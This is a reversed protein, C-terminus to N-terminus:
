TARIETVDIFHRGTECRYKFHLWWAGLPRAARGQAAHWGDTENKYTASRLFIQPTRVIAGNGTCVTIINEDMNRRHIHGSFYIDAMYQGRTRNNDIMGRTVEGGGGYGHHFFLDKTIQKGCNFTFKVFGWYSGMHVNTSERRLNSVLRDILGTQQRDLISQEHNGPTILAINSAYKGYYDSATEVLKDLYNNGRLDERLQNQDARKDWKGQMACFVDGIKMIAAGKEVAEEHHRTLLKRDCHANDFHEDSQMLAWGEWGARINDFTIRHCHSNLKQMRWPLSTKKM